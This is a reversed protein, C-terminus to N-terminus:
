LVRAFTSTSTVVKSSSRNPTPASDPRTVSPPPCAVKGTTNVLCGVAATVTDTALRSVLSPM